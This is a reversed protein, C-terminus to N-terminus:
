WEGITSTPKSNESKWERNKSHDKSKPRDVYEDNAWKVADHYITNVWRSVLLTPQAETMDLYTQDGSFLFEIMLICERPSYNTMLRKLVGMDRKMNAIVYNAGYERSKERFFYMLDRPTFSDCTNEIDDMKELFRAYEASSKSERRKIPKFNESSETSQGRSNRFAQSLDTNFKIGMIEQVEIKIYYQM